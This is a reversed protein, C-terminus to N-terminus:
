PRMWGGILEEYAFNMLGCGPLYLGCYEGETIYPYWSDGGANNRQFVAIVYYSKGDTFGGYDDTKLEFEEDEDKDWWPRCDRDSVVDTSTEESFCDMPKGPWNSLYYWMYDLYDAGHRNFEWQFAARHSKFAELATSNWQFSQMILLSNGGYTLAPVSAQTPLWDMNGDPVVRVNSPKLEVSYPWGESPVGDAPGEVKIFYSTGAKPSWVVRGSLAADLPTFPLTGSPRGVNGGKVDTVPVGSSDVLTATADFGDARVQFLLDNISQGDIRIFDVDNPCLVHQQEGMLLSAASAPDDNPELVDLCPPPLPCGDPDIGYGADGQDPCKDIEDVVGDGDRDSEPDSEYGWDIYYDQTVTYGSQLPCDEFGRDAFVAYVTYHISQPMEPSPVEITLEPAADSNGPVNARACDLTSIPSDEFYTIFFFVSNTDSAPNHVGLSARLSVPTGIRGVTSGPPEVEFWLIPAISARAVTLPVLLAILLGLFLTQKFRFLRRITM